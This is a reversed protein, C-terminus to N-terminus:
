YTYQVRQPAAMLSPSTVVQQYQSHYTPREPMFQSGHSNTTQYGHYEQQPMYQLGQSNTNPYGYQPVNHQYQPVNHQPINHTWPTPTPLLPPRNKPRTQSEAQRPKGILAQKYSQPILIPTHRIDTNHSTHPRNSLVTRIQNGYSTDIRQSSWLSNNAERNFGLTEKIKIVLQGTGKHNPHKRDRFLSVDGNMHSTNIYQYGFKILQAEVIKNVNITNSSADRNIISTFFVTAKPHYEKATKLVETIKSAVTSSALNEIDNIGSQIIIRSYKPDTNELKRKVADLTPAVERKGNRGPIMRDLKVLSGTSDSIYLILQPNSSTMKQPFSDGNKQEKRM